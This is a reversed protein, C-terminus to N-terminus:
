DAGQDFGTRRYGSIRLADWYKGVNPDDNLVIDFCISDTKHGYSSTAAGLLIKGDLVDFHMEYYENAAQTISFTLDNVNCTVEGKIEWFKGLDDIFMKTPDNAATNYTLFQFSGVGFPDEMTIEGSASVGDVHVFWEGALAETATMEVENKPGGLDTDNCSAFIGAALIM